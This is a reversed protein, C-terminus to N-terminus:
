LGKITVKTTAGNISLLAANPALNVAGLSGNKIAGTISVNSALAGGSLSV